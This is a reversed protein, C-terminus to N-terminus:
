GEKWVYDQKKRNEMMQIENNIGDSVYYEITKDDPIKLELYEKTTNAADVHKAFDSNNVLANTLSELHIDNTFEFILGMSCHSLIKYATEIYNLREDDNRILSSIFKEAYSDKQTYKEYKKLISKENTM